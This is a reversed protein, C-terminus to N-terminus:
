FRYGVAFVLNNEELQPSWTYFVEVPGLFSEWGYGIGYGTYQPGSFWVGSRFLDDDVNAMNFVGMLHSSPAFNWDLRASNKVFSNGLVSIHDLGYFPIINLLPENGYGGVAFDFSTVSSVGLKFGGNVELKVALKDVPQFAVGFLAQAISFESFNNNYDSAFLYLEFSGDFYVGSTPYYLDDYTDLTLSGYPGFYQSNDFVTEQIRGEEEGPMGEMGDDIASFTRTSLKLFQHQIGLRLAFEERSVTQFYIQNNLDIATINIEQLQPDLPVGFNDQFVTRRVPVKFDNLESNLGFSWYRGKDVYYQLRYRIYDGVILDFSARDDKTLLNKRTLNILASSNFLADYHASMRIFLRSPDEKLKLVLSDGPERKRSMLQYRIGGFNDTASLNNLGENLKDFTISDGPNFRMKGKIYARTFQDIGQLKLQTVHLTDVTPVRSKTRGRGKQKVGIERLAAYELRASLEGAQIIADGAEFDIVSYQDIDPKIYVSTKPKKAEMDKVTRYNNIQLLIDTATALSDRILLGHQVDVGIVVDMGKGWIEDVPYNNVVGGDILLRGDIEMPEFLSPFTGSATIAEPLYGQDLLVAEGSEVDTAICLFPIPLESFDEVDRVHYLLRVLESYIQQGRSFAQPIRVKFGDFPLTLAYRERNEKEYFTRASRPDEDQILEPLNMSHFISDLESASYGSAYLAGIIAGMSTGGIYDIEVGAEEIM